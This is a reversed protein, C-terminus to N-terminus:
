FLKQTEENFALEVSGVHKRDDLTIKERNPSPPDKHQQFPSHSLMADLKVMLSRVLEYPM